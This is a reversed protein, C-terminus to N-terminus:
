NAADAAPHLWTFDDGVDGGVSGRSSSFAARDFEASSTAARGCDICGM